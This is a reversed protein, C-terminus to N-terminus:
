GTGGGVRESFCLGVQPEAAKELGLLHNTRLKHEVSQQHCRLWIYHPSKIHVVQFDWHRAESPLDSTQCCQAQTGVERWM